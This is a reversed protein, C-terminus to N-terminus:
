KDSEKGPCKTCTSCDGCCCGKGMKKKRIMGVVLGAATGLVALLLIWDLLSM